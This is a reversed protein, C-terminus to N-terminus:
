IILYLWFIKVLVQATYPMLNNPIGLPDKGFVLAIYPVYLIILYVCLIGVLVQAIYPMLNNPIGLPDM